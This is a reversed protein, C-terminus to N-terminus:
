AVEDQHGVEERVVDGGGTEREVHGEVGAGEHRHDEVEPAVDGVEGRARERQASVGDLDGAGPPGHGQQREPGDRRGDHAQQEPLRELLRETTWLQDPAEQEDGRRQQRARLPDPAAPEDGRRADAELLRAVAGIRLDSAVLGGDPHAIGRGDPHCLRQRDEGADRARTRRDGGPHPQPQRPARRGAEREQQRDGDHEACRQHLEGAYPPPSTIAPTSV